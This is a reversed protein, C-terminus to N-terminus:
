TSGNSVDSFIGDKQYDAHKMHMNSIIGLKDNLITSKTFDVM